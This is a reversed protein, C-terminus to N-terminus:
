KSEVDRSPDVEVVRSPPQMLTRVQVRSLQWKYMGDQFCCYLGPLQNTGSCSWQRGRYLKCSAQVGRSAMGYRSSASSCVMLELWELWQTACWTLDWERRVRM